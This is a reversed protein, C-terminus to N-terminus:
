CVFLIGPDREEGQPIFDATNQRPTVDDCALNKQIEPKKIRFIKRKDSSTVKFADGKPEIHFKTSDKKIENTFHALNRTESDRSQEPGLALFFPPDSDNARVPTIIYLNDESQDILPSVLVPLIDFKTDKNDGSAGFLTAAEKAGTQNLRTESEEDKVIADLKVTGNAAPQAWTYIQRVMKLTIQSAKTHYNSNPLILIPLDM